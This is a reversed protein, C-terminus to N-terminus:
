GYILYLKCFVQFHILIVKSMAPAMQLFAPFNITARNHFKNSIYAFNLDFIITLYQPFSSLKWINSELKINKLM